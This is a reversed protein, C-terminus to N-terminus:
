HWVRVYHPFIARPLPNTNGIGTCNFQYDIWEKYKEAM